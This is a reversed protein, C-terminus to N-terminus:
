GQSSPPISYTGTVHAVLKEDVASHIAVEMVALRKGIKLMRGRGILDAPPPKALFNLTMSSTVAMTEPGIAAIVLAYMATDALIMIIPGSLTGGARLHQPKFHSRITVSDKSVAEIKFDFFEAIGVGERILVEIEAAAMWSM